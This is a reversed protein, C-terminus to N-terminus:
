DNPLIGNNKYKELLKQNQIREKKLVELLITIDAQQSYRFANVKGSHSASIENSINKLEKLMRKTEGFLVPKDLKEVSTDWHAGRKNRFNKIAELVKKHNRFRKKTERVNISPALDSNRSIMNLIRYFSPANPKNSLIDNVKNIFRNLHADRTPIFFGKYQNLTDVVKETPWLQEWIDFHTSADLLQKQLIDFANEFEDREIKLNTGTESAMEWWKNIANRLSSCRPIM